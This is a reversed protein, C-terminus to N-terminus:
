SGPRVARVSLGDDKSSTFSGDGDFDVMWASGEFPRQHTSASWYFSATPGFIPDICPGSGGGCSGISPARISELEAPDGTPYDTSGASTALRWDSRGAFTAGNVQSVWDWVTTVVGVGETDVECTGALAGCESCGIAGGTQAACIAAATANPQCFTEPRSSCRGAWGYRNDVDHLNGADAVGDAGDKKEWERNTCVDLVSLGLDTFCSAVCDDDIESGCGPPCIGDGDRCAPQSARCSGDGTGTKCALKGGTGGAIARLTCGTFESCHCNVDGANDVCYSTYIWQGSPDGGALLDLPVDGLGKGVFKLLRGPKIVAVKAQTPGAPAQRNVYKAVAAKNVVWGNATGAPVTFAGDPSRNGYRVSFAVAIQEPDLSAGKAVSADKVMFVVKATGAAAVKDVVILKTPEVPIDAAVAPVWAGTLVTAAMAIGLRGMPWRYWTKEDPM